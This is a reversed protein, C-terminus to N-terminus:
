IGMQEVHNFGSQVQSIKRRRKMQVYYDHEDEINKWMMYLVAACILSYEITCPFLFPGSDSLLQSMINNKRHCLSILDQFEFHLRQSPLLSDGSILLTSAHDDDDDAAGHHENKDGHHPDVAKLHEAVTHNGVHSFNFGGHGEHQGGHGHGHGGRAEAIEHSTELILVNLWICVNTAIMHMLGFRSVFKNKYINMKQNLFIFYM